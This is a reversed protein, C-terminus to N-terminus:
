PTLYYGGAVSVPSKAMTVDHFTLSNQESRELSDTLRGNRTAVISSYGTAYLTDVVDSVPALMEICISQSDTCTCAIFSSRPLIEALFLLADM